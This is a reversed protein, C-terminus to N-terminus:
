DRRFPGSQAIERCGQSLGGSHVLGEITRDLRELVAQPDLGFWERILRLIERPRVPGYNSWEIETVRLLGDGILIDVSREPKDFKVVRGCIRGLLRPADEVPIAKWIILNRARYCTFAGPYLATFAWILDYIQQTPRAWDIEGDTPTRSCTYRAEDAVQEILRLDGPSARAHAEISQEVTAQCVREYLGAASDNDGIAIARQGAVPGDEIAARLQFLTIGTERESNLLAWNL